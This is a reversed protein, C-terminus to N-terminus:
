ASESVDGDSLWLESPSGTKVFVESEKGDGDVDVDVIARVVALMFCSGPTEVRRLVIGTRGFVGMLMSDSTLASVAAEEDASVKGPVSVSMVSTVSAFAVLVSAAVASSTSPVVGSGSTRKPLLPRSSIWFICSNCNSPISVVSGESGLTTHIPSWDAPFDLM